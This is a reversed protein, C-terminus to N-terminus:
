GYWEEEDDEGAEILSACKVSRVLDLCDTLEDIVDAARDLLERKSRSETARLQEALARYETM